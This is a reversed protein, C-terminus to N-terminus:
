KTELWNVGTKGDTRLPVKMGDPLATEMCHAFRENFEDTYVIEEPAHVVIEDHIQLCLRVGQARMWPDKYLKIMAMKCIDAATNKHIVGEGDFRHSPHDVSLTYTTEEYGLAEKSVVEYTAYHTPLTIGAERAMERLKYISTTGGNRLRSLLVQNSSGTEWLGLPCQEVFNNVIFLPAPMDRVVTKAREGYGLHEAAQGGNILLKYYGTKLERFQTEVGVTRFLIQVERLLRPSSMHLAPQGHSNPGGGTTGDADLLGVLFAKRDELSSSWMCTPVYKDPAKCGWPYGKEIWDEKLQKNQIAVTLCQKGSHTRIPPVYGQTRQEVWRQCQEAKFRMSYRDKRDGVTVALASRTGSAYANGVCFGMWYAEGAPRWTGFDLPEAMSLCVRDGPQLDEFYTFEYGDDRLTLVAHRTDCKITQGNKLHIHALEWSGRNLKTYQAWEAGTWVVGTDPAEGIPIMGMDTLIRASAPKCGQIESNKVMRVGKAYDSRVTSFLENITRRRGLHTESYGKECAANIRREFYEKIRPFTNFYQAILKKAEDIDVNLTAALKSAGMGYVLGFNVAKSAKRHGLCKKEYETLPVYDKGAKKAADIEDDRRRAAMIDEYPVKFMVAATSSHLDREDFIAQIMTEDGTRHALIYMELQQYDRAALRYGLYPEFVERIWPPQNQMNPSKSSLRGTDAGTQKFECHVMTGKLKAKLGNIYTRLSKVHDRYELLKRAEASQSKIKNLFNKDLQPKGSDTYSLPKFGLTEFFLKPMDTNNQLNILPNGTQVAFWKVIKEMKGRIIPIQADLKEINVILGARELEYLVRTFPVETEVFYEQLDGYFIGESTKRKQLETRLNVVLWFTAWADLGAYHAVVEENTPDTFIQYLTKAPRLGRKVMQDGFVKKFDVMKVGLAQNCAWKLGHPLSTDVLAHMVMGDWVRFHDYDCNRYIDIGANLLMWTDFNANWMFLTKTPDEIIERVSEFQDEWVVIRDNGTSLSLLVARDTHRVLGTTETDIAIYEAKRLRQMTEDSLPQHRAIEVKPLTYFKGM